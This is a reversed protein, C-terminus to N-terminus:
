IIGYYLKCALIRRVATNIIDESIRKDKVANLVENKQKVFSSSIILDNGALVAQVAAEGNEVYTKVADMALDDTIILGSFNLKERLIKHVDPSLSAPLNKDMCKVINHSVLITPAGAKIGSIFPLFDSKEFTSYPREDIAIGTHTDVNDGYGPFHKMSSIMNDKNMTNILSATYTATKEAGRGYSRAFIFSSSKLPVDVVPTLNMNIGLSKLLKSKETSDTLIKPLQGEKWLEQPSKFKTKRFASYLSVRTVTGGEEDVGILMKIKSNKQNTNIMKTISSPTQNKFNVGFLIYGGPNNNKIEDNAKNDTPYRAYFMQGVKEELTMTKLLEDAKSYYKGFIDSSSYNDSKKDTDKDSDKDSSDSEKDDSSTNSIDSEETDNSVTNSDDSKKDDDPNTNTNTNTDHEDNNNSANSNDSTNKNSENSNPLSTILRACLIGSFVALIVLIIIIKKM